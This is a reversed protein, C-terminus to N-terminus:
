RIGECHVVKHCNSDLMVTKALEGMLYERHEKNEFDWKRERLIDSISKGKLLHHFEYLYDPYKHGCLQCRGGKAIVFANKWARRREVKNM